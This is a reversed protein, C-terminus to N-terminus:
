SFPCGSLMWVPSYAGFFIEKLDRTTEKLFSFDVIKACRM